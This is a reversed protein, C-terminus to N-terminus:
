AINFPPVQPLAKGLNDYFRSWAGRILAETNEPFSGLAQLRIQNRLEEIFEVPAMNELRARPVVLQQVHKTARLIQRTLIEDSWLLSPYTETMFKDAKKPNNLWFDFSKSVVELSDYVIALKDVNQTSRNSHGILVEKVYMEPSYRKDTAAQMAILLGTDLKVINTDRREVPKYTENVSVIAESIIEIPDNEAQSVAIEEPKIDEGGGIILKFAREAAPKIPNDNSESM